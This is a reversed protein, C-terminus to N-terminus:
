VIFTVECKLAFPVRESCFPSLAYVVCQPRRAASWTEVFFKLPRSVKISRPPRDLWISGAYVTVVRGLDCVTKHKYTTMVTASHRSRLGLFIRSVTLLLRGITKSRSNQKQGLSHSFEVKLIIMSETLLM